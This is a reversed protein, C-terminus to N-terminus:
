LERSRQIAPLCSCMLTFAVEVVLSGARIMIMNLVYKVYKTADRIGAWPEVPIPDQLLINEVLPPLIFSDHGHTLNLYAHLDKIEIRTTLISNKM